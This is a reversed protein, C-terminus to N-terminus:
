LAELRYVSVTPFFSLTEGTEACHAMYANLKVWCRKTYFFAENVPVDAFMWVRVYRKTSQYSM